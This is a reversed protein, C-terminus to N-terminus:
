ASGEVLEGKVGKLEEMKEKLARFNREMALKTFEAGTVAPYKKKPGQIICDTCPQNFFAMSYREGFYDQGIIRPTAVRHLTSKFRDDSWSMLQDGINCIIEDPKEFDVKSWEDGAGFETVVERGPCIELGSQGGKQFLLTVFDWDAHPGARFLGEKVKGEGDLEVPFYHLLRLVTQSNARSIDHAKVFYDDEFGLGRAFCVMLKESVEQCAKM